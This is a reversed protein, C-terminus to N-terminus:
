YNANFYAVARAGLWVALVFVVIVGTLPIGNRVTSIWWMGALVPTALALVIMLTRLKYRLM